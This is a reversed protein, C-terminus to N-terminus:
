ERIEVRIDDIPATVTQRGGTDPARGSAFAVAAVVSAAALALVAALAIRRMNLLREHRAFPEPAARSAVSPVIRVPARRYRVSNARYTAGSHRRASSRATSRRALVASWSTFGWSSRRNM